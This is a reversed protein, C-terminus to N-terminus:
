SKLNWFRLSMGGEFDRDLALAVEVVLCELDWELRVDLIDIIPLLPSAYNHFYHSLIPTLFRNFQCTIEIVTVVMFVPCVFYCDPQLRQASVVLSFSDKM